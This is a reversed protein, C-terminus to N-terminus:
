SACLPSVVLCLVVSGPFLFDGGERGGWIEGSDTSDSRRTERGADRGGGRRGGAGVSGRVKLSQITTLFDIAQRAGPVGADQEDM